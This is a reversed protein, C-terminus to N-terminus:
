GVTLKWETRHLFTRRNEALLPLSIKWRIKFSQLSRAHIIVTVQPSIKLASYYFHNCLLVLLFSFLLNTTNTIIILPALFDPICIICPFYDPRCQLFWSWFKARSFVVITNANCTTHNTGTTWTSNKKRRREAITRRM